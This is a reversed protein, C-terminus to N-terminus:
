FLYLKTYNNTFGVISPKKIKVFPLEKLRNEMMTLKSQDYIDGEKIDIYNSIYLESIKAGGVITISDITILPGKEIHLEASITSSDTFDIKRLSSSAFPYGNNEYHTVLASHLLALGKPTITKKELIKSRYGSKILAEDDTNGPLIQAWRYQQGLSIFVDLSQKDFKFEDINATLYGRQILQSEIKRTERIASASDTVIAPASLSRLLSHDIGRYTVKIQALGSHM